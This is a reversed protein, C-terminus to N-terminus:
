RVRQKWIVIEFLLHMQFKIVSRPCGHLSAPLFMVSTLLVQTPALVWIGVSGGGWGCPCGADQAPSFSAIGGADPQCLRQGNNVHCPSFCAGRHETDQVSPVRLWSGPGHTIKSHLEVCSPVPTSAVGTGSRVCLLVQSVTLLGWLGSSM